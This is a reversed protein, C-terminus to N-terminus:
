LQPRLILKEVDTSNQVLVFEIGFGGRFHRVVRGNIWGLTVMAGVDPTVDARIGAGSVSYDLVECRHVQGDGTLLTSDPRIPILRAHRRLERQAANQYWALKTQLLVREEYTAVIRMTFGTPLTRLIPGEFKGLLAFYISVTDGISGKVPAAVTLHDSTFNVVKCELIRPKGSDDRWGSLCYHGPMAYITRREVPREIVVVDDQIAALM